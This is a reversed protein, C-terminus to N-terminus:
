RGLYNKIKLFTLHSILCFLFVAIVEYFKNLLLIKKTISKGKLNIKLSTGTSKIKINHFGNSKREVDFDLQM